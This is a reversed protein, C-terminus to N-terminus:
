NILPRLIQRKGKSEWNTGGKLSLSCNNFPKFLAPCLRTGPAIVITELPTEKGPLYPCPFGAFGTFVASKASCLNWLQM